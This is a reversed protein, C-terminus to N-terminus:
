CAMRKSCHLALETKKKLSKVHSWLKKQTEGFNEEKQDLMNNKIHKWYSQRIISQVHTKQNKYNNWDAESNSTKARVYLHDRKRIEKKVPTTIWPNQHKASNVKKTPIHKDMTNVIAQKLRTWMENVEHPEPNAYTECFIDSFNSLDSIM